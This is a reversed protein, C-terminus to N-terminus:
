ARKGQRALVKTEREKASLSRGIKALNPPLGCEDIFQQMKIQVYGRQEPSLVWYKIYDVADLPWDFWGRGLEFADEIARAAPDGVGRPARTGDAKLPLLTGKLIQDLGEWKLGALDAVAKVGGNTKCVAELRRKRIEDNTEM